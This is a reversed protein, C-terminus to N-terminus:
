GNHNVRMIEKLGIEPHHYRPYRSTKKGFQLAEQPCWQICALCQECRHLWEPRGGELRVNGNPCVQECVGCGNCRPDTWFNKDM